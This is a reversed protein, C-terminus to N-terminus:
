VEWPVDDDSASADSQKAESSASRAASPKEPSPADTAWPDAEDDNFVTQASRPTGAPALESTERPTDVNPWDESLMDLVKRALAISEPDALNVV